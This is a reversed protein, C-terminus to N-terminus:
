GDRRAPPTKSVVRGLLARNDAVWDYVGERLRQYESFAGLFEAPSRVPEGLDTRLFAAEISAGCSYVADETVFHSCDEYDDPVRVRLDPHDDLESFGVLDFEGREALFEAWWTCFGCDDDFVLTPM